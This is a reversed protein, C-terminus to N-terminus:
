SLERDLLAYLYTDCWEGKLWYTERLHAERTMALRECVRISDVNRPDCDAYFRHIGISVGHRLLARMAETVYGRGRHAPHTMYWIEAERHEPHVLKFGVRGIMHGIADPVIALDYTRRPTDAATDARVQRIRALTEDLTCADRTTYRVVEPLSEYANAHPADSDEIERLTLRATRLSFTM